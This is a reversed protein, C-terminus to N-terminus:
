TARGEGWGRLRLRIYGVEAPKLASSPYVRTRIHLVPLPLARGRKWGVLPHECPTESGRGAQPSLTPHPAECLRNNTIILKMSDSTYSCAISVVSASFTRGSCQAIRIM